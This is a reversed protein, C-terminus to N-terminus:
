CWVYVCRLNERCVQLRVEAGDAHLLALLPQTGGAKAVVDCFKDNSSLMGVLQLAQIRTSANKAALLRVIPQMGDNDLIEQLCAQDRSLNVLASSVDDLV